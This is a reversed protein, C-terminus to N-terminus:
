FTRFRVGWLINTNYDTDLHKIFRYGFTESPCDKGAVGGRRNLFLKDGIHADHHLKRGWSEGKGFVLECWGSFDVVEGGILLPYEYFFPRNCQLSLDECCSTVGNRIWFLEDGRKQGSVIKM